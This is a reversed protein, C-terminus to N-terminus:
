KKNMTLNGNGVSLVIKGAGDGLTGSFQGGTTHQNQFSLGNNTILGNGVSAVLMANTSNPITFNLDGNGLSISTFCTDILILNTEITGNGLGIVMNRTTSNVSVTGNGLSLDYNFSDPVLVDMQIEYERDDNFPNSVEINIGTTSKTVNISIDTLHSQADDQSIKSKVKKKIDCHIGSATDSASIQITGNTNEIVLNTQSSLTIFQIEGTEAEYQNSSSMSNDDCGSILAFSIIVFILLRMVGGISQLDGGSIYTNRKFKIKGSNIYGEPSVTLTM